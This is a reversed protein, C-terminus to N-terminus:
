LIDNLCNSFLYLVVIYTCFQLNYCRQMRSTWLIRQPWLPWLRWSSWLKRLSRARGKCRSTRFTGCDGSVLVSCSFQNLHQKLLFSRRVPGLVFCGGSIYFCLVYFSFVSKNKIMKILIASQKFVQHIDFWNLLCQPTHWRCVHIIDTTFADYVQNMVPCILNGRHLLWLLKLNLNQSTMIYFLSIWFECTLYSFTKM